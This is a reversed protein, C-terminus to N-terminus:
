TKWSAFTGAQFQRGWIPVLTLIQNNFVSELKNSNESGGSDSGRVVLGDSFKLASDSSVKDLKHLFNLILVYLTSLETKAVAERAVLTRGVYVPLVLGNDLSNGQNLLKVLIDVGETHSQLLPEGPVEGLQGLDDIIVDNESFQGEHDLTSFVDGVVKLVLDGVDHEILLLGLLDDVGSLNGHALVHALAVGLLDLAKGLSADLQNVETLVEALVKFSSHVGDSGVETSQGAFDNTRLEDGM